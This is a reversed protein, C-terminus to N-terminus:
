IDACLLPRFAVTPQGNALITNSDGQHINLYWGSAPVPSTVGTIVRTENIVQGQSNANLDMLM